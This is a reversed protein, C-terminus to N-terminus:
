LYRVKVTVKKTSGEELKFDFDNYKPMSLGTHYYDSFGFGEKPMHILNYDMENNNNEDDLLSLGYEGAPLSVKLTLVGDKIAKKSFKLEKYPTKDKFEQDGTFVNMLINGKASRIGKITILVDEALLNAPALFICALLMVTPLIFTRM